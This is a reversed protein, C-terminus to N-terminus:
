SLGSFVSDITSMEGIIFPSLCPSSSLESRLSSIVGNLQCIHIYLSIDRELLGYWFKRITDARLKKIKRGLESRREVKM